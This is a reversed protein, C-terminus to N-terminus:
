RCHVSEIHGTIAKCLHQMHLTGPWSANYCSQRSSILCLEMGTHTVLISFCVQFRVPLHTPAGTEHLGLLRCRLLWSWFWCLGRLWCCVVVFCVYLVFSFISAVFLLLAAEAAFLRAPSTWCISFLMTDREATFVDTNFSKHCPSSFQRCWAAGAVPPCLQASASM